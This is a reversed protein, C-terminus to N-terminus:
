APTRNNDGTYGYFLDERGVGDIAKLYSEVPLGDAEGDITMIEQGNQPIILFDDIKSKGYSSIREVFSRMEHRYDEETSIINVENSSSSFLLFILFFGILKLHNRLNM